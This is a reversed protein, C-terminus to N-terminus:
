TAAAGQRGLAQSARQAAEVVLPALARVGATRIRSAPGSIGLAAVARGASDVIPAAIGWVSTRWEGRNVAYGQARIRDLERALAHSDALTTDTHAKLAQPPALRLSATPADQWALLVKGTAVCYAPARGGIESYARVPELSDLKDIYVVHDSSLVSLHVTEHCHELLWHMSPSAAERVDVRNMARAGLEWVKLSVRYVGRGGENVVYGMEVLAQLIRHANSRGVGIANALETVGVAEERASLVELLKLGKVLTNNM